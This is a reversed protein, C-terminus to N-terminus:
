SNFDDLDEDFPILQAAADTSLHHSFSLTPSKTHSQMKPVPDATRSNNIECVKVGALASLQIVVDNMQAAQNRLEEAASASEEANAANSQTVQDMQNVAINIQEIGQSQETTSAAIEGVLETTRNVSHVIESLVSAVEESIEVGSKSNRVSKEILQSTDKAAEASRRALNRVEEAVVAFGKGAEGARAAEVAANLALLNTQFAIEDIVKIIKATEDSSKQIDHIATSMRSMSETGCGAAKRAEEALLNAQQANDSSQRTMTSMEELSSSTEELGAAQETAGEALSQSSTSVQSSAASVQHSGETLAAIIAKIPKVINLTIGVALGIGMVIAILAMTIMQTIAKKQIEEARAELQKETEEISSVINTILANMDAELVDQKDIGKKFLAGADVYQKVSEAFSGAARTVVDSEPALAIWHNIGDKLTQLQEQYLEWENEKETHVLYVERVRLMFFAGLIDKELGINLSAKIDDSVDASPDQLKKGVNDAGATM